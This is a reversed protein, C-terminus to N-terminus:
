LPKVRKRAETVLAEPIGWKEKLTRYAETYNLNRLLVLTEANGKTAKDLLAQRDTANPM